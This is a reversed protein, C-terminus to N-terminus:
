LQLSYSNLLVVINKWSEVKTLYPWRHKQKTDNFSIWTIMYETTWKALCVVGFAYAYKLLFENFQHVLVKLKNWSYVPNSQIHTCRFLIIDEVSKGNWFHFEWENNVNININQPMHIHEVLAQIHMHTHIHVDVLFMEM